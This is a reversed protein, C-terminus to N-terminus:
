NDDKGQAQRLVQKKDNRGSKSNDNYKGKNEGNSVGPCGGSRCM